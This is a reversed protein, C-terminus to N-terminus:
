NQTLYKGDLKRKKGLIRKKTKKEEKKKVRIRNLREIKGNDYSRYTDDEFQELKRKKGLIRREKIKNKKKKKVRIRNLREIRSEYRIIRLLKFKIRKILKM